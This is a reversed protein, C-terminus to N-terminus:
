KCPEGAALASGARLKAIAPRLVGLLEDPEMM